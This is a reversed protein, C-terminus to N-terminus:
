ASDRSLKAFEEVQEADVLGADSGLGTAVLAAAANAFEAASSPTRRSLRAVILAASFADGCGTTDIVPVTIARSRVPGSDAAIVCGRAGLTVAAWGV